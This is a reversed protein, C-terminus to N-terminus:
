KVSEWQLMEKCNIEEDTLVIKNMIESKRLTCSKEEIDQFVMNLMFASTVLCFMCVIFLMVLFFIKM